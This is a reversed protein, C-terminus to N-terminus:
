IGQNASESATASFTLRARLSEFAMLLRRKRFRMKTLAPNIHEIVCFRISNSRFHTWTMSEEINSLASKYRSSGAMFDYMKLGKDALAQMALVHCVIGPMSNREVM